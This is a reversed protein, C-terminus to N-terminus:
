FASEYLAALDEETVDRPNEPSCHDALARAVLGNLDERTVGMASLTTPLGLDSALAAMADPLATRGPLGLRAAMQDMRGPCAELNFRLVHPLFVANLTGHHLRKGPVAGLPHSLSHVAGLGKQFTLGGALAALMMERRHERDAGDAVAGRIHRWARQLGDIAIADAIANDCRACFNEVCHSVADMGTAATLGPPMSVTLAPDCVAAHPLMAPSVIGLKDGSDFSVLAARGVESGSGATTPIAVHPVMRDSRIKERGGRIYAYQELPPPHHVLLAVCKALDISSGGGLSVCGDCDAERYRALCATADAASPNTEVADYVCAPAIGLRDVVGLDSLVPDTVVLPRRVDLDDLIEPLATAVDVDFHIDTLYYMTAPRM